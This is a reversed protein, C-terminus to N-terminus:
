CDSRDSPAEDLNVQIITSDQGIEPSEHATTGSPQDHDRVVEPPRRSDVAGDGRRHLSPDHGGGAEHRAAPRELLRHAQRLMVPTQGDPEAAGLGAEVRVRM